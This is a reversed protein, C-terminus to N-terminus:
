FCPTGSRYFHNLDATPFDGGWSGGLQKWLGGLFSWVGFPTLSAPVDGVRLDGALAPCCRHLSAPQTPSADQQQTKTRHGSIIRLGPWDPMSRAALEELAILDRALTPDILWRRSLGCVDGEIRESRSM